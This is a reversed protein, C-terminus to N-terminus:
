EWGGAEYKLENEQVEPSRVQRGGYSIRGGGNEEEWRREWWITERGGGRMIIKNGRILSNSTDVSPADKKNLKRHDTLQIM